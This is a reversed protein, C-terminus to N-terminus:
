WDIRWTVIREGRYGIQDDVKQFRRAYRGDLHTLATYTSRLAAPTGAMARQQLPDILLALEPDGGDPPTLIELGDARAVLVMGPKLREAAGGDRGRVEVAAAALDATSYTVADARRGDELTARIPCRWAQASTPQCRAWTPTIFRGPPAIFADRAAPDLGRVRRHLVEAEADAYGLAVLQRVAEPEPADRLAEALYARRPDWTGLHWWGDLTQQDTSVILYSPPPACHTSALVDARAAPDLGRRALEADAADRELTALWEILAAAEFDGVGAARLKARAGRAGEPFPAADSGCNLM